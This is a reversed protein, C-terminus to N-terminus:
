IDLEVAGPQGLARRVAAAVDDPLDQVMAEVDPYVQLSRDHVQYFSESWTRPDDWVSEDAGAMRSWDPEDAVYVAYQGRRTAYVTWRVARLGHHQAFALLKRGQFRKRLSIPGDAVDLEISQHESMAGEQHAVYLRLAAAVAPSLGGALQAARDFLPVDTESVYV